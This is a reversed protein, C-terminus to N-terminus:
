MKPKVPCLAQLKIKNERIGAHTHDSSTHKTGLGKNINLRKSRLSPNRDKLKSSPVYTQAHCSIGSIAHHDKTTLSHKTRWASDTLKIVLIYEIWLGVSVVSARKRQIRLFAPIKKNSVAQSLVTNDKIHTSLCQKNWLQPHFHCFSHDMEKCPCCYYDSPTLGGWSDPTPLLHLMHRCM